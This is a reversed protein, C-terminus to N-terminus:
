IANKIFAVLDDQEPYNIWQDQGDRDFVHDPQISFRARNKDACPSLMVIRDAKEASLEINHTVVIATSAKERITEKIYGILRGSNKYDLNGTPEDGFLIDFDKMMARAFSLRQRQGGAVQYPFKNRIGNGSLNLSGTLRDIMEGAPVPNMGGQILRAILMNESNTYHPMLYDDQFIFSFRNKRIAAVKRYRHWIGALNEDRCPSHYTVRGERITNNMLGLAELLTSKGSGSRGLIVTLKGKPIGLKEIWVVAPGKELYSCELNEIEFANM